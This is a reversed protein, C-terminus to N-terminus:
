VIEVDKDLLSDLFGALIVLLAFLVAGVFLIIFAYILGAPIFLFYNFIQTEYIYEDDDNFFFLQSYNFIQNYIIVLIAVTSMLFITKISTEKIICFIIVLYILNMIFTITIYAYKKKIKLISFTLIVSAYDLFILTLLILIYKGEIFNSLMLFYFIMFLPYFGLSFYTCKKYKKINKTKQYFYMFFSSIGCVFSSPILVGLALGLNGNFVKNIEFYFGLFLFIEILVLQIISILYIKFLSKTWKAFSKVKKKKKNKSDIMKKIRQNKKM